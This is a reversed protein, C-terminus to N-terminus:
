TPHVSSVHDLYSVEQHLLISVGQDKPWSSNAHFKGLAWFSTWQLNFAFVSLKDSDGQPIFSAISSHSQFPFGSSTLLIARMVWLFFEKEQFVFIHSLVITLPSVYMELVLNLFYYEWSFASFCFHAKCVYYRLNFEM